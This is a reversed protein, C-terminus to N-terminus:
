YVREVSTEMSYQHGPQGLFMGMFGLSFFVHKAQIRELLGIQYVGRRMRFGPQGACINWQIVDMMRYEQRVIEDAFLLVKLWSLYNLGRDGGGEPVKGSRGIELLADTDLTWDESTKILPVKKGALLGRVDALAEGLAWVSLVLFTTLLLLPSFGAIGTIAMALTRAQERKENDALLHILNLGERVALLRTVATGLNDSDASDGGILYEVEYCLGTSSDVTGTESGISESNKGEINKGEVSEEYSRFCDFFKGCYENVLLHDILSISRGGDTHAETQSPLTSMDMALGSVSMGDPVVLYLLGSNYLSEVQDLLGETEKDKVGHLFSLARIEAQQFHRIVPKWLEDLDPGDSEEEDDDDEEWEEIIREVEQAEEIVEQVLAIQEKAHDALAEVEQRRQGDEDVYSEYEEIEQELQGRVVDSCDGKEEEYVARSAELKQALKDAQKRYNEVLGPMRGYETKLKEAVRRFGSGDYNQLYSLAESKLQQKKGQSTSIAELAKELDLAEQAHGRYREAVTKVSATEKVGDWLQQATEVGFDLDWVGYKMYDLIEQELYAGNEETALRRLETQVSTLEMPYWNDADFYNQLFAAYDAELEDETEYEAFLLRYSDWLERHYQSFVSDLASASATQLYWRAGATRASELLGCLLAFICMMVMSIFVTVVGGARQM